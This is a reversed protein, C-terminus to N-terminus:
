KLFIFKGGLFSTIFFHSFESVAFFFVDTNKPTQVLLPIFVFVIRLSTYYTKKLFYIYIMFKKLFLLKTLKVVKLKSTILRFTSRM